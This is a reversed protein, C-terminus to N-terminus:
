TSEQLFHHVKELVILDYNEELEKSPLFVGNHIIAAQVLEYENFNSLFDDKMLLYDEISCKVFVAVGRFILIVTRKGFQNHVDGIFASYGNIKDWHNLM